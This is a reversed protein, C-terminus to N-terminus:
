AGQPPKEAITRLVMGLLICLLKVVNLSYVKGSLRRGTATKVVEVQCPIRSRMEGVHFILGVMRCERLEDLIVLAKDLSADDLSGFGENIFITDLTVGGARSQISDAIGLALSIAAM